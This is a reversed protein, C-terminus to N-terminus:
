HVTDPNEAVKLHYKASKFGPMNILKIQKHGYRLLHEIRTFDNRPVSSAQLRFENKVVSLLLFQFYTSSQLHTYAYSPMGLKVLEPGDAKSKM